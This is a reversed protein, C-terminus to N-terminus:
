EWKFLIKIKNLHICGGKLQNAINDIQMKNSM